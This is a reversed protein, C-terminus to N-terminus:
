SLAEKSGNEHTNEGDTSESTATSSESKNLIMTFSGKITVEISQNQLNGLALVSKRELKPLSINFYELRPFYSKLAM